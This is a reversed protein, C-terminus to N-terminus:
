RRSSSCRRRAAPHLIPFNLVSAFVAFGLDGCASASVPMLEEDVADAVVDFNLVDDLEDAVDRLADEGGELLSGFEDSDGGSANSSESSEDESASDVHEGDDEDHEDADEDNDTDLERASAAAGAAPAPRAGSRIKLANRGDSELRRLGRLRREVIAADPAGDCEAIESDTARSNTTSPAASQAADERSDAPAARSAPVSGVADPQQSSAHSSDGGSDHANLSPVTSLDGTSRMHPLPKRSGFPPRAFSVGFGSRAGPLLHRDAHGDGDSSGRSSGSASGVGEPSAGAEHVTPLNLSQDRVLFAASGSVPLAAIEPLSGPPPALSLPLFDADVAPTVVSSEGVSVSSAASPLARPPLERRRGGALQYASRPAASSLAPTSAGDISLQSSSVLRVDSGLASGSPLPEFSSVSQALTLSPRESEEASTAVSSAAAAAAAAAVEAEAAGASGRRRRLTATQPALDRASDTNGASLMSIAAASATLGLRSDQKVRLKSSRRMSASAAAADISTLKGKLDTVGRNPNVM